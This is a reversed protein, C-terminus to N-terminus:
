HKERHKTVRKLDIGNYTYVKAKLILKLSSVKALSFGILQPEKQFRNKLILLGWQSLTFYLTYYETM